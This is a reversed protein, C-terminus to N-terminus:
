LEPTTKSSSEFSATGTDSTNTSQYGEVANDLWEARARLSQLAYSQELHDHSIKHPSDPRNNTQHTRPQGNGSSLNNNTRNLAEQEKRKRIQSAEQEITEQVSRAIGFAYAPVNEKLTSGAGTMAFKGITIPAILSNNSGIFADDHIISCYKSYGDYNCTITGAGITVRSGIHANGLYAHHKAKTQLGITSDSVEVFTGIVSQEGIISQKRIHAFPGVSAESCVISDTIVSHPLIHANARIISNNIISYSGIIANAEVHSGQQLIAGPQIIAGAEIVVDHEVHTTQPAIFRVGQQMWFSILESKKIHEAIWLEKMNSVHRINDFPVNVKELHEGHQSMVEVLGKTSYTRAKTSPALHKIYRELYKKEICYVGANILTSAEETEQLQDQTITIHSGNQIVHEYGRLSPDMNHATVFTLAAHSKTHKELLAQITQKTLLPMNANIILLNDASWHSQSQALPHETKNKNLDICNCSIGERKLIPQIVKTNSGIFTIPIHLQQLLKATYLIIEQGCIRETLKANVPNPHSSNSTALIIAQPHHPHSM